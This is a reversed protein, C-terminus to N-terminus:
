LLKRYMGREFISRPINYLTILILTNATVGSCAGMSAWERRGARGEVGIRDAGRM